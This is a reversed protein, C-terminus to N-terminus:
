IFPWPLDVYDSEALSLMSEPVGAQQYCALTDRVSIDYYPCVYKWSFRLTASLVHFDHFNVSNFIINLEVEKSSM